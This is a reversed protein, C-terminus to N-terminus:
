TFPVRNMKKYLHHRNDLRELPFTSVDMQRNIIGPAVFVTRELCQLAKILWTGVPDTNRHFPAGKVEVSPSVVDLSLCRGYRKAPDICFLYTEKNMKLFNRASAFPAGKLRSM